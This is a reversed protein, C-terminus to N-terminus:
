SVVAATAVILTKAGVKKLTKAVEQATTGTTMIDDVLLVRRGAVRDPQKVTYAEALNKRREIGTLSSQDPTWRSKALIRPSFDAKLCGALVRAM